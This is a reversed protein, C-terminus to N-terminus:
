ALICVNCCLENRGTAYMQQWEPRLLINSPGLDLEYQVYAIWNPYHSDRAHFLPEDNKGWFSKLRWTDILIQPWRELGSLFVLVSPITQRGKAPPIAEKYCATLLAQLCLLLAALLVVDWVVLISYLLILLRQMIESLFHEFLLFIEHVGPGLSEMRGDVGLDLKRVWKMGGREHKYAGGLKSNKIYASLM